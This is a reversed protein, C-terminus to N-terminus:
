YLPISKYFPIDMRNSKDNLIEWNNEFKVGKIQNL